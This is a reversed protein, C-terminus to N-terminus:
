NGTRYDAARACVMRIFTQYDMRGQDDLKHGGAKLCERLWAAVREDLPGYEETYKGVWEQGKRALWAFEPKSGSFKWMERVTRKKNPEDFPVMGAISFKKWMSKRVFWLSVNCLVVCCM